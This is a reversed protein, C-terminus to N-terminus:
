AGRDDVTAARERTSHPSRMRLASVVNWGIWFVSAFLLWNLTDSLSVIAKNYWQLYRLVDRPTAVDSPGNPMGFTSLSATSPLLFWFGLCLVLFAIGGNSIRRILDDRADLTSPIGRFRDVIDLVLGVGTAIFICYLQPGM